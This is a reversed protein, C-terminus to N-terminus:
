KFFLNKINVILKYFYYFKSIFKVLLNSNDIVQQFTRKYGIHVESRYKGITFSEDHIRFFVQPDSVFAFYRYKQLLDLYIKVDPGAGTKLSQSCSPNNISNNLSLILDKKRFLGACPSVVFSRTLLYRMFLFISFYKREGKLFPWMIKSRSLSNGVLCSSFSYGSDSTFVSYLKTICHPLLLDDSFLIKTYIGKSLNVGNLWNLVPGFNKHNKIVTVRKNNKVFELTKSLTKDSSNNDIIVIEINLYTQNLASEIAKLILNERNYVPIVISILPCNDQFDIFSQQLIQYNNNINM